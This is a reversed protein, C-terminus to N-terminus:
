FALKSIEFSCICARRYSKFPVLEFSVQFCDVAKDYDNVIHYLIGLACQVDADIDSPSLRAAQFFASEAAKFYESYCFLLM